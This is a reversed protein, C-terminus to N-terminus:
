DNDQAEKEDMFAKLTDTILNIDDNTLDCPTKGVFCSGSLKCDTCLEKNICLNRLAKLVDTIEKKEM